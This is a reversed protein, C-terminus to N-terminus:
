QLASKIGTQAGCHSQAAKLDPSWQVLGAVAGAMAQRLRM